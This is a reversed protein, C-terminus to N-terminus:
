SVCVKIGYKEAFSRADKEDNVMPKGKINLSTNLLIPCGSNKTWETLLSYLGNNEPELSQKSEVPAM